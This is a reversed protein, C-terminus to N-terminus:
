AAEEGKALPDAPADSARNVPMSAPPFNLTVLLGGGAAPKLSLSLDLVDCLSKTIALGLGTGGSNSILPDHIQTFPEFAVRIQEPSMGPGRDRIRVRIDSLRTDVIVDIEGKPPSFKAANSLINTLCQLTLRKDTKVLPADGLFEQKVHGGRAVFNPELFVVAEGIIERLDHTEVIPTLMRADLKSYDLIDNIMALLHQGSQSIDQVYESQKATMEGRLGGLLMDSFGVVANLPTRLEHSMGALFRDRSEMALESQVRAERERRALRRFHREQYLIGVIVVLSMVLLLANVLLLHRQNRVVGVRENLWVESHIISKVWDHLQFWVGNVLDIAEQGQPGDRFSPDATIQDLENAMATLRAVLEGHGVSKAVERTEESTLVDVRSFFIDLRLRLQDYSVNPSGAVYLELDKSLRLYDSETQSTAWFNAKLTGSMVELQQIMFVLSVVAAGILLVAAAVLWEARGRLFKM